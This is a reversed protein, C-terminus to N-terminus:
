QLQITEKPLLKLTDKDIIYNRINRKYTILLCNMNLIEFFNNYIRIGAVRDNKTEFLQKATHSHFLANTRTDISQFIGM